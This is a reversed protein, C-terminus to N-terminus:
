KAQIVWATQRQKVILTPMNVTIYDRIAKPLPEKHFPLRFKQATAFALTAAIGAAKNFLRAKNLQNPQLEGILLSTDLAKQSLDRDTDHIVLIVLGKLVMTFVGKQDSTFLDQKLRNIAELKIKPDPKKLDELVVNIGPMLQIGPTPQTATLQTAEETM